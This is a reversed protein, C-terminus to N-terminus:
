IISNSPMVLFVRHSICGGYYGLFGVVSLPAVQTFYNELNVDQGAARPTTVSRSDGLMLSTILSLSIVQKYPQSRAPAMVLLTIKILVLNVHENMENQFRWQGIPLCWSDALQKSPKSGNSGVWILLFSIGLSDPRSPQKGGM